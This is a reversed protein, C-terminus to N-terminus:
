FNVRTGRIYTTNKTRSVRKWTINFDIIRQLLEDIKYPKSYQIAEPVFETKAELHRKNVVFADQEVFLLVFNSIVM